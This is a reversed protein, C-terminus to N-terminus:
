GKKVQRWDDRQDFLTADNVDVARLSIGYSGPKEKGAEWPVKLTSGQKCTTESQVVVVANPPDMQTATCTTKSDINLVYNITFQTDADRPAISWSKILPPVKVDTDTLRTGLVEKVPGRFAAFHWGPAPIQALNGLSFMQGTELRAMEKKM